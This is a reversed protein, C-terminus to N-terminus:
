GSTAPTAAPKKTPRRRGTLKKGFGITLPVGVAVSARALTALTVSTDSADLLRNVVARSTKMRVAMDTKTIQRAQMAQELQWALVRKVAAATVEELQGQADLFDEFSTGVHRNM